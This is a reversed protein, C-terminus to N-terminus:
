ASRFDRLKLKSYTTLSNKIRLDLMKSMLRQEYFEAQKEPNDLGAGYNVTPHSGLGVGSNDSWVIECHSDVM